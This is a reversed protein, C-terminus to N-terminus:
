KLFQELDFYNKKYVSGIFDLEQVVDKVNIASVASSLYLNENM